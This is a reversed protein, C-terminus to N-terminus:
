GNSIAWLSEFVKNILKMRVPHDLKRIARELIQNLRAQTVGFDIKDVRLEDDLDTPIKNFGMFDKFIIRERFTLTRFVKDEMEQKFFQQQELPMSLFTEQFKVWATKDM